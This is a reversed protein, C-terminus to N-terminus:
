AKKFVLGFHYPPLETEKSLTFGVDKAWEVIQIPTPRINLAPGRPSQDRKWHTVGLRGNENLLQYAINLLKKPEECHLINFLSIYDVKQKMDLLNPPVGESIDHHHLIINNLSEKNVKEKCIDILKEDIDIGIVTGNIFKAVPFLFTGYGCGIDVLTQIEHTIEMQELITQSDFFSNWLEEEPMGSDRYKM